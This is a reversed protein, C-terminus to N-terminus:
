EYQKSCEKFECKYECAITENRTSHVGCVVGSVGKGILTISAIFHNVACCGARRPLCAAVAASGGCVRREVYCSTSIVVCAATITNLFTIIVICATIFHRTTFIKTAALITTVNLQTHSVTTATQCMATISRCYNYFHKTLQRLYFYSVQIFRHLFFRKRIHLINPHSTM